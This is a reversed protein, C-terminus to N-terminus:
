NLLGAPCFIIGESTGERGCQIPAYRVTYTLVARCLRPERRPEFMVWLFGWGGASWGGVLHPSALNSLLARDWRSTTRSARAKRIASQAKRQTEGRTRESHQIAIRRAANLCSLANSSFSSADEEPRFAFSPAAFTPLDNGVVAM